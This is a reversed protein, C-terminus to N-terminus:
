VEPYTALRLTATVRRRSSHGDLCQLIGSLIRSVPGATVLEEQEVILLPPQM